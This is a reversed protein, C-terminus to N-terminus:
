SAAFSRASRTFPFTGKHAHILLILLTECFLSILFFNLMVVEPILCIDIQGSALSAHM